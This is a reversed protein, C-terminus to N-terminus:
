NKAKAQVRKEEPVDDVCYSVWHRILSPGGRTDKDHIIRFAVIRESDRCFRWDELDKSTLGIQGFIWHSLDQATHFAAEAADHLGYAGCDRWTQLAVDLQSLCKEGYHRVFGERASDRDLGILDLFVVGDDSPFVPGRREASPASRPYADAHKVYVHRVATM